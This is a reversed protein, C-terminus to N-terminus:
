ELALKSGLAVFAAAFSHRMWTLVKPRSLAHNRISAAFVGYGVFVIFTLLMFVASLELMHGLENSPLLWTM